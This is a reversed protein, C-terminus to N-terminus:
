TPGDFYNHLIGLCSLQQKLRNQRTRAIWLNFMRYLKKFPGVYNNESRYRLLITREM